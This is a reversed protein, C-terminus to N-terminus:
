FNAIMSVNMNIFDAGGYMGCEEIYHGIYITLNLSAEGNVYLNKVVHYIGLSESPREIEWLITEANICELALPQFFNLSLILLSLPAITAIVAISIM